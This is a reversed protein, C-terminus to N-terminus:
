PQKPRAPDYPRQRIRVWRILQMLLVTVVFALQLQRNGTETIQRVAIVIAYLGSSFAVSMVAIRELWWSGVLASPAGTIGGLILLCALTTMAASGLTGAISSPPDILAMFGGWALVSYLAAYTVAIVRPPHVRSWLRKFTNM